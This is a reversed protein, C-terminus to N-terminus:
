RWFDKFETLRVEVYGWDKACSGFLHCAIALGDDPDLAVLLGRDKVQEV